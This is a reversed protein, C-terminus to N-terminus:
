PHFFNALFDLFLETQMWDSDSKGHAWTSLFNQTIEPPLRKYKYIMLQTVVSGNANGTILITLFEKDDSNVQQYVTKYGKGALVKTGKSKFTATKDYNFFWSPDM